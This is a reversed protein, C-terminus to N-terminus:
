PCPVSALRSSKIRAVTRSYTDKTGDKELTGAYEMLMDCLTKVAPKQVTDTVIERKLAEKMERASMQQHLMIFNETDLLLRGLLRTKKDANSQSKPFVEGEFRETTFLGTNLMFREGNYNVSICVPMRGDRAPKRWDVYSKIRM